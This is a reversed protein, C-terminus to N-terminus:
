RPVLLPPYQSAPTCGQKQTVQVAANDVQGQGDQSLLKIGSEHGHLPHNEGIQQRDRSEEHGHPPQSIEPALLYDEQGSLNDESQPEKNHPMTSEM